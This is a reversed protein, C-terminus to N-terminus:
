PKTSTKKPDPNSDMGFSGYFGLVLGLDLSVLNWVWVFVWFGLFGFINPNLFFRFFMNM